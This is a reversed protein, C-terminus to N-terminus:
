KKRLTNLIAKWIGISFLVLEWNKPYRFSPQLMDEDKFEAVRLPPWVLGFQVQKSRGPKIRVTIGIRKEFLRAAEVM